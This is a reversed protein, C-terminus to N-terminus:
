TAVLRRHGGTVATGYSREDQLLRWPDKTYRKGYARVAICRLGYKYYLDCRMENVHLERERPDRSARARDLQVISERSRAPRFGRARRRASYNIIVRELVERELLESGDSATPVPRRTHPRFNFACCGSCGSPYGDCKLWM